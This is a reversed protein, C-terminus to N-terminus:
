SITGALRALAARTTSSALAIRFVTRQWEESVFLKGESGPPSDPQGLIQTAAYEEFRMFM